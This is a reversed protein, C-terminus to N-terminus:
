EKKKKKGCGCCISIRLGSISDTGCSCCCWIRLGSLRVPSQVGAQVTVWAAVTPDRVWQVVAPVGIDANKLQDIKQFKINIKYQFQNM